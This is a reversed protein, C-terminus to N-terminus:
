RCSWWIPRTRRHRRPPPPPIPNWSGSSAISICSKEAPTSIRNEPRPTYCDFKAYAASVGCVWEKELFRFPGSGTTDKLQETPPTSAVREPMMFCQLGGLGYFSPRFPKKLRIQFRNDDIAAIEHMALAMQRGFSDRAAWRRISAACDQARIKKNDHFLLNDRLTFVRTLGAASVEHGACMQPQPTGTEDIGYLTDYVM